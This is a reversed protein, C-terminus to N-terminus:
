RRQRHVLILHRLFLDLLLAPNEDLLHARTALRLVHDFLDDVPFDFREVLIDRKQVLGPHTIGLLGDAVKHLFDRGLSSLIHLHTAKDSVLQALRSGRRPARLWMSWTM